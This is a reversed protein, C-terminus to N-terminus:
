HKPVRLWPNVEKFAVEKLPLFVLGVLSKLHKKPMYSWMTNSNFSGHRFINMWVYFGLDPGPGNPLACVWVSSLRGPRQGRRAARRRVGIVAGDFSGAEGGDQLM